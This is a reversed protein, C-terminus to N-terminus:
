CHQAVAFSRVLTTPAGGNGTGVEVTVTGLPATASVTWQAGAHGGGSSALIGYGGNTAGSSGDAYRSNYAVTYGPRTQVSLSQTGGPVVCTSGLAASFWPAAAAPTGHPRATALPTGAGTLPAVAPASAPPTASAGAAAVDGAGGHRHAAAPSAGSGGRAVAVLLAVVLVGALAGAALLRTRGIALLRDRM